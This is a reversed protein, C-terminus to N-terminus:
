RSPNSGAEKLELLDSKWKTLADALKSKEQCVVQKRFREHLSAITEATTRCAADNLAHLLHHENTKDIGKTMWM